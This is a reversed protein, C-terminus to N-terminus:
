GEPREWARGGEPQSEVVATSMARKSAEPGNRQRGTIRGVQLGDGVRERALWVGELLQAESASTPWHHEPRRLVVM